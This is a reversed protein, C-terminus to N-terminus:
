KCPKILRTCGQLLKSWPWLAQLRAALKDCGIHCGVIMHITTLAKVLAVLKYCGQLLSTVVKSCSLIYPLLFTRNTPPIPVMACTQLSCSWFPKMNGNFEGYFPLAVDNVSFETRGDGYVAGVKLKGTMKCVQPPLNIVHYVPLESFGADKTGLHITRGDETELVYQYNKLEFQKRSPHYMMRSPSYVTVCVKNHLGNSQDM